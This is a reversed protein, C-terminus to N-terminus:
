PKSAAELLDKSQPQQKILILVQHTKKTVFSLSSKLSLNGSRIYEASVLLNSKESIEKIAPEIVRRKFQKFESYSEDCGLFFRLDTVSIQRWGQNQYQCLLEYLRLSYTSDLFKFNELIMTTFKEKLEFILPMTSDSFKMRLFGEKDKYEQEQLLYFTKTTGRDTIQQIDRKFLKQVAEKLQDYIVAKCMQPFDNAFDEVKLVYEQQPQKPNIRSLTHYIIRREVLTMKQSSEILANSQQVLYKKLKDKKMTKLIINKLNENLLM